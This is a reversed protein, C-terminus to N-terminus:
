LRKVRALQGPSTQGKVSTRGAAKILDQLKRFCDQVNESQKRSGGAQIVLSDSREAYYQSAHLQQHLVNPILPLLKKM